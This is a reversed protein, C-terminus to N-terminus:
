CWAGEVPAYSFCFEGLVSAFVGGGSDDIAVVWDAWYVVVDRYVSRALFSVLKAIFRDKGSLPEPAVSEEEFPLEM